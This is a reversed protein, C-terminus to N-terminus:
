ITMQQQGMANYASVTILEGTSTNKFIEGGNALKMEPTAPMKNFGSRIISADAKIDLIDVVSAMPDSVDVLMNGEGGDLIKNYTKSINDHAIKAADNIPQIVEKKIEDIHQDLTKIKGEFTVRQRAASSLYRKNMAEVTEDRGRALSTLNTKMKQSIQESVRNANSQKEALALAKEKFQAQKTQYSQSNENLLAIPRSSELYKKAQHSLFGKGILGVGTTLAGVSLAPLTSEEHTSGGARMGAYTALGAGTGALVATPSYGGALNGVTYMATNGAFENLSGVPNIDKGQQLDIITKGTQQLAAGGLGGMIAGGVLGLGQATMSLPIAALTFIDASEDIGDAYSLAKNAAHNYGAKKLQEVIALRETWPVDTDALYSKNEKVYLDPGNKKLIDMAKEPSNGQSILYDGSSQLFEDINQM